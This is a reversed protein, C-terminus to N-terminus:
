GVKVINHDRPPRLLIVVKTAIKQGAEVTQAEVRVILDGVVPDAVAGLEEEVANAIADVIACYLASM